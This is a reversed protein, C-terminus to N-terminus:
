RLANVRARLENDTAADTVVQGLALTGDSAVFGIATANPQGAEVGVAQTIQYGAAGKIDIGVPVPFRGAARSAQDAFSAAASPNLLSGKWDAPPVAVLLGIVPPKVGGHTLPLLRAATTRIGAADGAVIVLPPPYDALALQGGGVRPLRFNEVKPHSADQAGAPLDTSFTDADVTADLDIASAAITVTAAADKLLLGSAQDLSLEHPEMVAGDETSAACAYRVATRGVVTHIGLRRADPCARRFQQSGEVLVYVPPMGDIDTAEVRTYTPDGDPNYDLVVRGDWVTWNGDRRTESDTAPEGFYNIRTRRDGDAIVEYDQRSEQGEQTITMTYRGRIV